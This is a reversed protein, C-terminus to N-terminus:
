KNDKSMRAKVVLLGGFLVVMLSGLTIFLVTGIGGTEPLLNGKVNEIKLGGSGWKNNNVVAYNNDDTITIEKRTLLKTYGDPNLTEEVYYTKADLGEIRIVGTNTGDM